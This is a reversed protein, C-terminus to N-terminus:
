IDGPNSGCNGETALFEIIHASGKVCVCLATCELTVKKYKCRKVCGKKCKCSVLEYCTHAAEPLRTWHSEYM